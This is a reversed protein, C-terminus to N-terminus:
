EPLIDTNPDGGILRVLVEGVVECATLSQQGHDIRSANHRKLWADFQQHVERTIAITKKEVKPKATPPM